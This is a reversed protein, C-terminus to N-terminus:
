CCIKMMVASFNLSELVFEKSRDPQNLIPKKSLTIVIYSFHCLVKINAPAKKEGCLGLLWLMM